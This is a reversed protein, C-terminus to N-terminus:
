CLQHYNYNVFANNIIKGYIRICNHLAIKTSCPVRVVYLYIIYYVYMCM